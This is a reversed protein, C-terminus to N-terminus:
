GCAASFAKSAFHVGRPLQLCKLEESCVVTNLTGFQLAPPLQYFKHIVDLAALV